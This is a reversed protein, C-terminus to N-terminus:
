VSRADPRSPPLSPRRAAFRPPDITTADTLLCNEGAVWAFVVGERKHNAVIWHMSEGQKEHFDGQLLAFQLSFFHRYKPSGTM